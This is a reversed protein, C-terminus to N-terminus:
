KDNNVELIERGCIVRFCNITCVTDRECYESIEQLRGSYFAESTESGDIGGGKSSPVSLCSSVAALSDPYMALGRWSRGVDCHPVDWPKRDGLSILDSPELRNVIMRKELFPIDFSLSNFGALIKNPYAASTKDLLTKVKSLLEYESESAFNLTKIVQGEEASGAIWGFSVCIVKGFPAYLAAKDHFYQEPTIELGTKKDVENFYRAKYLFADYMHSQPTLERECRATEIDLFLLHQEQLNRLARM